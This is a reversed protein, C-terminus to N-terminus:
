PVTVTMERKTVGGANDALSIRVKHEGSPLRADPIQIGEPTVYPRVRDTIDIPVLKVVTVKLSNVDVPANRAAFKVSVELPPLAKGATPKIVDILPGTDPLDRSIDFPGIGRTMIESGPAAPMGAEEPTILWVEGDGGM